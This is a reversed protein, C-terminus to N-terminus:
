PLGASRLNAQITSVHDPGLARVATIDAIQQVTPDPNVARILEELAALRGGCFTAAHDRTAWAYGPAPRSLGWSPALVLLFGPVSTARCSVRHVLM